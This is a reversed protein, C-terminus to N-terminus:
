LACLRTAAEELTADDKAFCFRLRSGTFPTDCFVSLPISAVGIERTWRKALEVDDADSIDSYDVVQFFTSRAPQLRFKSDQLLQCFYNRKGQYFTPLDVYFDPDIQLFDAVGHQMPTSVSFTTFQHVKRFEASLNAPGACYGLKWGTAHFTKGFSSIVLSREWLEDHSLLSRHPQGDFVIHEYVEDALLWCDSDRVIGALTDLDISSLIAGTPNHPFNLIILRTKSNVTDQLRQWDMEFDQGNAAIRLPVHRTMGGALAIAPEYSDYAPDIVIVEDGRRVFAQISSFLGETAGTCVTLETDADVARRQMRLIKDRIAHRLAQIGIMPAYQNAGNEIHFSIRETLAAPPQFGPFGQALNIAGTDNALQSMVAFISTDVDPLKSDIIRSM